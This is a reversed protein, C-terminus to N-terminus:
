CYRQSHVVPGARGLVVIGITHPARCVISHKYIYINRQLAADHIWMYWIYIYIKENKWFLTLFLRCLLLCLAASVSLANYEQTVCVHKNM